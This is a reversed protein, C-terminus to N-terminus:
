VMFVSLPLIVWAAIEPMFYPLPSAGEKVHEDLM